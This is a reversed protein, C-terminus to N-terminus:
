DLTEVCWIENENIYPEKGVIWIDKGTFSDIYREGNDFIRFTDGIVLDRIDINEWSQTEENLRQFQRGTTM